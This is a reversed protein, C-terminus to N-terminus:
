DYSFHQYRAQVWDLVKEVIRYATADANTLLHRRNEVMAALEALSQAANEQPMVIQDSVIVGGLVLPLYVDRFTFGQAPDQLANVLHEIYTQFRSEDGLADGFVAYLAHLAFYAADKLLYPYAMGGLIRGAYPAVRENHNLAALVGECWAPLALLNYQAPATQTLHAGVYYVDEGPYHESVQQAVARELLAIMGKVIFHAEIPQIDFTNFHTMTAAYLPDYLKHRKLNPLVQELLLLRYRLLLEVAGTQYDDLTWLSVWEPKLDVLHAIQSSMIAFKTEIVTALVGHKQTSFSLRQMGTIQEAAALRLHDEVTFSGGGEPQRIREPRTKVHNTVAIGLVYDSSSATDPLCGVHFALYGVEGRRLAVLLRRNKSFFRKLKGASDKEPLQLEAVVEVDADTANQLLLIAEFPSGACVVHPRVALATQVPGINLRQGGTIYGLVDPYNFQYVSM